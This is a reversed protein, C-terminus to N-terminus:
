APCLFAVTATSWPRGNGKLGQAMEDFIAIGAAARDRVDVALLKPLTNLPHGNFSRWWSAIAADPSACRCECKLM